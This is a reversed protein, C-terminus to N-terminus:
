LVDSMDLMDWALAVVYRGRVDEFFFPLGIEHSYLYSKDCFEAGFAVELCKDALQWHLVACFYPFTEDFGDWFPADGTLV